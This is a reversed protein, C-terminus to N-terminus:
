EDLFQQDISDEIEIETLFTDVETETDFYENEIVSNNEIPNSIMQKNNKYVLYEDIIEQIFPTPACWGLESKWFERGEKHRLAFAEFDTPDFGHNESVTKLLHQM